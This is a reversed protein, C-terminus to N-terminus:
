LKLRKIDDSRLDVRLSLIKKVEAPTLRWSISDAGCYDILEEIKEVSLTNAIQMLRTFKDRISWSTSSALYSALSRIEKDLILGGPRNFTSKFIVKELRSTVETTLMAIFADYNTTTLSNKFTELLGDLNQVLTQIFPEDTEYRLLDDENVQHNVSLFSDLWPTVRPKVASARLQEMGFDIISRLTSTVNKMGALCSDVKDHDKKPMNLFASNIEADLSKSLTEVYEISVDANNLYALFMLRAYDTDSAQLRGQQISTQFANYAQALDLYGAPYGQRLRTKLRTSFEGELIGCALNVVACVGDISWSTISRRVCKKVIYFVDDVMSSTQQDHELTDMGLAKIVSEELFYRELALYAGLIEQMVHSLESNKIMEDFEILKMSRQEEDAIAIELDNTIRRRLFRIYLEARSHMLTLEGLLLDLTKPDVKEVGQKRGYDNINQIRKSISRALVFEQYIKKVQKDCENQLIDVTKIIRGPGYYTEIIPQHVEIIRAIKEFLLTMTDAFIVPAREDKGKVDLASLLNKKASDQLKVCLYNSFKVLGDDHMGLLPFIKFFREVSALDEQKVADDFKHTVVKRLQDAAQRLTALSGAISVRDESVDDATRELLKQDMLLYRRVHGAGQEYDENHLATAVGESCLQLDLIDNVRSQCECVRSRAHDLQRVKASVTEALKNTKEITDLFKEGEIRIVGVNPLVKSISKLKTEIHCHRQLMQELDKNVRQEAEDLKKCIEALNNESITMNNINIIDKTIMKNSQKISM